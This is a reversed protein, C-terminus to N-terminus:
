GPSGSRHRTPRWSRRSGVAVAVVAVVVAAVVLAVVVVAVVVVLVVVVVVADLERLAALVAKAAAATPVL